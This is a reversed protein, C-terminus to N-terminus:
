YRLDQSNSELYHIVKESDPATIQLIFRQNGEANGYILFLIPRSTEPTSRGFQRKATSCSKSELDRSNYKAMAPTWTIGESGRGGGAHFPLHRMCSGMTAGAGMTVAWASM